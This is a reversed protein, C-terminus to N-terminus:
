EILRSRRVPDQQWEALEEQWKGAPNRSTFVGTIDENNGDGRLRQDAGFSRLTVVGANGIIYDLPRGWADSTENDYSPIKPLEALTAPLKDNEHAVNLIRRKTLFMRSQTLNRLPITEVFCFSAVLLLVITSIIAISRGSALASCPKAHHAILLM